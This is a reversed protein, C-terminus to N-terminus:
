IKSIVKELFWWSATMCALSLIFTL